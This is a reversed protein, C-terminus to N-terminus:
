PFKPIKPKPISQEVKRTANDIVAKGSLISDLPGALSPDVKRLQDSMKKAAKKDGSAYYAETLNFMGFTNRGDLDVAKKYFAVANKLDGLGRYGYGLQNLAVVWNGHLGLATQLAQVALQFEGLANQSSGLNLYAADLKPDLAAARQSFNRALEYDNKAAADNKANAQSKGANYYAWGVNSSDIATPTMDAATNLRAVAKDWEATKGLCYGWENYLPSNNIGLSATKYEVNAQPYQELQRYTSALNAHAQYDKDDNKVAEQYAVAAENYNGSNYLEVGLDFAAPAFTPDAKLAGRYSAVAENAKGQRSM